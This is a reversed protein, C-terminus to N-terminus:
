PSSYSCPRSPRPLFPKPPLQPARSRLRLLLEGIQQVAPLHQQQWAMPAECFRVARIYQRLRKWQILLTMVNYSVVGTLYPPYMTM